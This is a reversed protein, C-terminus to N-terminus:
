MKQNSKRLRSLKQGSLSTITAALIFRHGKSSHPDILGVVDTSWSEFPWSSVTPHLSNPPQHIVTNHIQCQHFKRAHEICDRIMTPWYYGLRKIKVKMKPGSQHAGCLGEHVEGMVKRAEENNLCCLWMQDFSRRYLTKNVYSFSLARKRIQTALSRDDPLKGRKLYEMFPVRWDSEEEVACVILTQDPSSLDAPCLAQRYQVVVSVPNGNPDALEKALKALADAIFLEMARDHYPLLEPKLVKFIGAVQNIILQSDGFIKVRVISMQIVLELGVILAEYETENNTRPESLNYSYRLTHGEPSVFVLGLGVRVVPTEYPRLSKISSAGDFYFEWTPSEQEEVSMVLEDPLDDNLPSDSLTQRTMLYQLPNVRSILSIKHSLMYHRLKQVAFILALCQKEMAPYKLEAPILRRSLYYLANEKGEENEQALLAGLSEDLDTTYLILPKSPIPAALVPPNTLYRKISEFAEQCNKDWHFYANKKALAAFPHCRGALNSIFRRLLILKGQFSRLQTLSRPPKLDVIAKIMSPDIEIGRYRVIFSLFKGAYIGFACKLPNMKLDHKRLREFIIRLDRLHDSRVKSKVVLDDVYCEVQEHILEHFIITMARQYTAGVNKLGFPMVKYCFVGIPTRFATFKENKPAMKIQNYGSSGDLFSFISHSSAIDVM